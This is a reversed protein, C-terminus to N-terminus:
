NCRRSHVMGVLCLCGTRRGLHLLTHFIGVCAVPETVSAASCVTGFLGLEGFEVCVAQEGVLATHLCLCVMPLCSTCVVYMSTVCSINRDRRDRYESRQVLSRPQGAGSYSSQRFLHALDPGGGALLILSWRCALNPRKANETCKESKACLTM